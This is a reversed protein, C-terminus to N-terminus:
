IERAEAVTMTREVKKTPMMSSLSSLDIGMQGLMGSQNNFQTSPDDVQITVENNELLGRKLQEAVSLRENRVDETVEEWIMEM